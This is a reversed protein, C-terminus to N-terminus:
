KPCQNSASYSLVLMSCEEFKGLHEEIQNLIFPNSNVNLKKEVAPLSDFLWLEYYQDCFLAITHRNATLLYGTNAYLYDNMHAVHVVYGFNKDDETLLTDLKHGSGIKVEFNPPLTMDQLVEEQKLMISSHYGLKTCTRSHHASAWTMIQEITDEHFLQEKEKLFCAALWFFGASTCMNSGHAYSLQSKYNKFDFSDSEPPPSRLAIGRM